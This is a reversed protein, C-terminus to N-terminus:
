KRKKVSVHPHIRHDSVQAYNPRMRPIPSFGRTTELEKRIGTLRNQFDLRVIDMNRANRDVTTKRM